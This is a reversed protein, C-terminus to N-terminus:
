MWINLMGFVQQSMQVLTCEPSLIMYAASSGVVLIPLQNNALLTLYPGKALATSMSALVLALACMGRCSLLVQLMMGRETMSRFIAPLAVTIAAVCHRREVQLDLLQFGAQNVQTYEKCLQYELEWRDRALLWGHVQQQSAPDVTSHHNSLILAARQHIQLLYRSQGNMKDSIRSARWCVLACMCWSQVAAAAVLVSISNSFLAAQTWWVTLVVVMATAIRLPLAACTSRTSRCADEFEGRWPGDVSLLGKLGQISLDPELSRWKDFRVDLSTWTREVAEIPTLLQKLAVYFVGLLFVTLSPDAMVVVVGIAPLAAELPVPCRAPTCDEERPSVPPQDSLRTLIEQKRSEEVPLHLGKHDFHMGKEDAFNGNHVKLVRLMHNLSEPEAQWEPTPASGLIWWLGTPPKRELEARLKASLALERPGPEQPSCILVTRTSGVLHGDVSM